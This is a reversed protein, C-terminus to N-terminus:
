ASPKPNRGVYEVPATGLPNARPPIRPTNRSTTCSVEAYGKVPSSERPIEQYPAVDRSATRPLAYPSRIDLQAQWDAYSVTGRVADVKDGQWTVVNQPALRSRRIM